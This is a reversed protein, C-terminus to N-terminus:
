SRRWEAYPASTRQKKLNELAFSEFDAPTKVLQESGSGISTSPSTPTEREDVRHGEKIFSEQSIHVKRTIGMEECDGLEQM